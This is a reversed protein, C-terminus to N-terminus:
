VLRVAGYVDLDIVKGPTNWACRIAFRGELDAERIDLQETRQLM